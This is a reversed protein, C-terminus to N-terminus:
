LQLSRIKLSRDKKITQPIKPSQRFLELASTGPRPSFKFVHTKSFGISQCLKLTKQFDTETETPFGVIIDTGFSFSQWAPARLSKFTETIKKSNYPRHMLKLIRDSGSQIPIHLFRSLRKPYQKYLRIFRDDISNLPISGFSILPISTNKLLSLVLFSLDYQYQDINVGTIIIERYGDHLASNVIDVANQIPLSWLHPRRYPVICYSCYQSCGSQIKLLYRNTHSFKDKIQHTYLSSLNNKDVVTLNKLTNIKDLNACGSAIIKALPFKESLRKIESISEYEGKKTVSCTNVFIIDPNKSDPIYGQDILTQSYQNTEAANVRCGFNITLFTKHPM